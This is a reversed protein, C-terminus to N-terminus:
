RAPWPLWAHLRFCNTTTPGHDLTGGALKARETLGVLGVRSGAGPANIALPNRIEISLGNGAAGSIVVTVPQGPAHKRANTLGEQIIRYGHRGTTPPISDPPTSLPTFLVNMGATRSEEVLTDIDGLGPQPRRDGPAASNPSRLVGVIERLDEM